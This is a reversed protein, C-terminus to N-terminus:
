LQEQPFNLRAFPGHYKLAGRDYARAAEEATQFTGLSIIKYFIKIRARYKGHELVVGKYGSTNNRNIRRNRSNEANTCVRLNERWNHLGDGDKHDVKVGEPASMILRHMQILRRSEDVRCAYWNGKNDKKALWKWQMLYEYDEDDVLAIMGKTLPISKM